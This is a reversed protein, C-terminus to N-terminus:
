KCQEGHATKVLRVNAMVVDFHFNYYCDMQECKSHCLSGPHIKFLIGKFTIKIKLVLTCM